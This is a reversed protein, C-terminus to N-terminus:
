VTIVCGFSVVFSRFLLLHTLSRQQGFPVRVRSREMMLGLNVDEGSSKSKM